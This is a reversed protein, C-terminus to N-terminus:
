DYPDAERLQKSVRRLHERGRDTIRGDVGTIGHEGDRQATHNFFSDQLKFEASNFYEVEEQSYAISGSDLMEEAIKQQGYAHQWTKGKCFTAEEDKLSRKLM